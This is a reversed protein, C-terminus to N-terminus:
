DDQLCRRGPQGFGLIVHVHVSLVCPQGAFFEAWALRIHDEIQCLPIETFKLQLGIRSRNAIRSFQATPM